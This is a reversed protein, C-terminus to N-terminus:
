MICCKDCFRDKADCTSEFRCKTLAAGTDTMSGPLLNRIDDTNEESEDLPRKDSALRDAEFKADGGYTFDTRTGDKGIIVGSGDLDVQKSSGDPYVHIKPGSAVHTVTTGDMQQVVVNGNPNEQIKTGNAEITIGTGDANRQVKKGNPYDLVMEGTVLLRLKTGDDFEVVRGSTKKRDSTVNKGLKKEEKLYFGFDKKPTTPKNPKTSLM